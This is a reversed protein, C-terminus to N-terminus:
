FGWVNLWTYKSRPVNRSCIYGSFIWGLFESYIWLVILGDVSFSSVWNYRSRLINRSSRNWTVPVYGVSFDSYIWLNLTILRTWRSVDFGIIDLINRNNICSTHKIFAWVRNERFRLSEHSLIMREKRRMKLVYVRSVCQINVFIKEFPSDRYHLM